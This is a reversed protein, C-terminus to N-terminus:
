WAAGPSSPSAQRWGQGGSPALSSAGAMVPRQARSSPALTGARRTALALLQSEWGPTSRLAGMRGQPAGSSTARMEGRSAEAAVSAWTRAAHSRAWGSAGSACCATTSM